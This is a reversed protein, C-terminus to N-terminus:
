VSKGGHRYPRSKNYEHKLKIAYEMDWGKSAVYDFVRIVCDALEILEGEPKNQGDKVAEFYSQQFPNPHFAISGDKTKLYIPPNKQRVEETAEALESVMLLHLELAKRESDYWGKLKALEHIEKAIENVKM